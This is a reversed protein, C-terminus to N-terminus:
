RTFRRVCSRVPATESVSSRSERATRSWAPAQDAGPSSSVNAPGSGDANMVYIEGDGDRFSTLAITSGDPSWAPERDAAPHNTLNVLATGDANMVYIEDNGDRDSTFAIRKRDPSWVPNADTAENVTLRIDVGTEPDVKYIESNLDRNSVFVIDGNPELVAEPCPPLPPPDNTGTVTDAKTISHLVSDIVSAFQEGVADLADFVPEFPLPGQIPLGTAVRDAAKATQKACEKIPVFSALGPRWDPYEAIGDLDTVQMPSSGNENMVFVDANRTYAIKKGDPSWAPYGDFGFFDTLKTLAGSFIDLVYVNFDLEEVGDRNSAFALKRGDPSWSPLLDRAPSNTVNWEWGVYVNRIFIDAEDEDGVFRTFAILGGTPSWAPGRAGGTTLQTRTGDQLNMMWIDSSGEPPDHTFALHTGDPSWSPDSDSGDPFPIIQACPSQCGFEQIYMRSEFGTRVSFAIRNGDPSWTPDMPANSVLHSLKTPNDGDPETVYVEYGDDGDLSFAIHGNFGPYAAEAPSGAALASAVLVSLM